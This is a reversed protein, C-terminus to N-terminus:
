TGTDGQLAATLQEISPAGDRHKGDDYLRCSVSTEVDTGAFPDHGNILITPSGHMGLREAAESTTVETERVPFAAGVAQLARDVHSRARDLNPCDPVHLIQIETV